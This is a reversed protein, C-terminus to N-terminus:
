KSNALAQLLASLEEVHGDRIAEGSPYGDRGKYEAWGVPGADDRYTMIVFPHGTLTWFWVNDVGDLLEHKPEWGHERLLLHMEALPDM